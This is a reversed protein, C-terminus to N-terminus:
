LSLSVLYFKKQKQWADKLLGHITRPRLDVQLWDFYENQHSGLLAKQLAYVM